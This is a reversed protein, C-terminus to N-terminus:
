NNPYHETPQSQIAGGNKEQKRKIMRLKRSLEYLEETDLKRFETGAIKPSRCYANVTNWNTTDIGIQQMLKLCSSRAKRRLYDNYDRAEDKACMPGMMRCLYAYEKETVERLSDTRGGTCRQVLDRKLDERDGDYPIKSLLMYFRAYNM